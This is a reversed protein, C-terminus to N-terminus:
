QIIAPVTAIIANKIRNDASKNALFLAVAVLFEDLVGAFVVGELVGGFFVGVVRVVVVGGFVVVVVFVDVWVFVVGVVVGRGHIGYLLYYPAFGFM